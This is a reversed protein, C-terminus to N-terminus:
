AVGGIQERRKAEATQFAIEILIDSPVINNMKLVLDDKAREKCKQREFWHMSLFEIVLHDIINNQAEYVEFWEELRVSEDSYPESLGLLIHKKFAISNKIGGSNLRFAVFDEIMAITMRHQDAIEALTLAKGCKPPQPTNDKGLIQGTTEATTEAFAQDIDLHEKPPQRDETEANVYVGNLLKRLITLDLDYYTVRTMDTKSSAVGLNKLITIATNFEKESFGLEECWSDGHQYLKHPCPKIFKYFAGGSKTYWYIMQQLLITATVKKTIQNLEKRYLLIEKDAALLQLINM